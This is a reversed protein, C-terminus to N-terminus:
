EHTKEGNTNNSSNSQPMQPWEVKKEMYYQPSIYLDPLTTTCVKITESTEGEEILDIVWFGESQWINIKKINLKM